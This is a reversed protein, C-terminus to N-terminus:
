ALLCQSLLHRDVEGVQALDLVFTQIEGLEWALFQDALEGCGQIGVPIFKQNQRLLNRRLDSLSYELTGFDESRQGVTVVFREVLEHRLDAFRTTLFQFCDLPIAAAGVSLGTSGFFIM